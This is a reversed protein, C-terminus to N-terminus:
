LIVMGKEAAKKSKGNLKKSADAATNKDPEALGITQNGMLKRAKKADGIVSDIQRMEDYSMAQPALPAHGVTEVATKKGAEVMVPGPMAKGNADRATVQVAGQYTAVETRANLFNVQYHTGRVAAIATPTYVKFQSATEKNDLLAFIKGSALDLQTAGSGSIKVNTDGELRVINQMGKDFALQAFNGQTVYLSDGDFVPDGVKLTSKVSSDKHVVWANGENSVFVCVAEEAFSTGATMPLALVSLFIALALGMFKTTNSRM